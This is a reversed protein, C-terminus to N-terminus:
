EGLGAVRTLAAGACAVALADTVDLPVDKVAEGDCAM